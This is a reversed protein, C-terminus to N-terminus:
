IIKGELQFQIFTNYSLILMEGHRYWKPCEPRELGQHDALPRKCLKGVHIVFFFISQCINYPLQGDLIVIYKVYGKGVRCSKMRGRGVSFVIRLPMKVHVEIRWQQSRSGDFFESYSVFHQSTRLPIYCCLRGC